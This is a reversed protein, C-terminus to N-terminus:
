ECLTHSRQGRPYVGPYVVPLSTLSLSQGLPGTRLVPSRLSVKNEPEEPLNEPEPGSVEAELTLLPTGRAGSIGSSGTSGTYTLDPHHYNLINM